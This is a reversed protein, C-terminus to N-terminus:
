TGTTARRDKGDLSSGLPYPNASPAGGLLTPKNLTAAILM